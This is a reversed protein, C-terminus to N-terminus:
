WSIIGIRIMAVGCNIARDRGEKRDLGVKAVIPSKPNSQASPL